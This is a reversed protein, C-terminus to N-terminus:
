FLSLLYLIEEEMLSLVMKRLPIIILSVNFSFLSSSSSGGKMRIHLIYWCSSNGVGGGGGGVMMGGGGSGDHTTTAASLFKPLMLVGFNM